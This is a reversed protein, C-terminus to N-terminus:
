KLEVESKSAAAARQNAEFTLRYREFDSAETLGLPRALGLVKEEFWKQQEKGTGDTFADGIDVFHLHCYYAQLTDPFLGKVERVDLLEGAVLDHLDALFHNIRAFAKYQEPAITRLRGLRKRGRSMEENRLAEWASNRATVMEPESWKEWLTVAFGLTLHRRQEFGSWIATLLAVILGLGSLVIPVWDKRELQGYLWVSGIGWGATLVALPVIAWLTRSKFRM